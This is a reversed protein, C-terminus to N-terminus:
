KGGSGSPKAPPPKRAGSISSTYAEFKSRFEAPASTRTGQANGLDKEQVVSGAARDNRNSVRAGSIPDPLKRNPDIVADRGPKTEISRGPGDAAKPPQKKWREVFQEM